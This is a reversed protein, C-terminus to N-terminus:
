INVNVAFLNHKLYNTRKLLARSVFIKWFYFKMGRAREPPRARNFLRTYAAKKNQCNYDSTHINRRLMRNLMRKM